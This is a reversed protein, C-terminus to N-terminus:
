GLWTLGVLTRAETVPVTLRSTVVVAAPGATRVPTVEGQRVVWVQGLHVPEGGPGLAAPPPAGGEGLTAVALVATLGVQVTLVTVLTNPRPRVPPTEVNVLTRVVPERLGGEDVAALVGGAGVAVAGPGTGAVAAVLVELGVDAAAVDVLAGVGAPVGPDPVVAPGVGVADVLDAPGGVGGVGAGAVLAEVVPPLVM